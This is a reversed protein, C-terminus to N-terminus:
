KPQHKGQSKVRNAEARWYEAKLRSSEVANYLIECDCFGGQSRLVDFIDGMDESSFKAARLITESLKYDGACNERERSNESPSLLDDLKEFFRERELCTMVDPTISSILERHTAADEDSEGNKPEGHGEQNSM